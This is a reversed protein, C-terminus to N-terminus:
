LLLSQETQAIEKENLAPGGPGACAPTKVGGGHMKGM